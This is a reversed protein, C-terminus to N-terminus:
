LQASSGSPFDVKGLVATVDVESLQKDLEGGVCLPLNCKSLHFHGSKPRKKGPLSRFYGVCQAPNPFDHKFSLKRNNETTLIPTHKM